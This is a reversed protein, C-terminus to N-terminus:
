TMPGGVGGRGEYITEVITRWDGERVGPAPGNGRFSGDRLQFPAAHARPAALFQRIAAQVLAKMTTGQRAAHERLTRMLADPIEITTKMHSYPLM